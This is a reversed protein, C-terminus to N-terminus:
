LMIHRKKGPWDRFRDIVDEAEEDSLFESGEIATIMLWEMNTDKLTSRFRTKIQKMHAHKSNPHPINHSMHIIGHLDVHICAWMFCILVRNRLVSFSSFMSHSIIAAM